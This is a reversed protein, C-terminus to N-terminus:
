NGAADEIEDAIVDDPRQDLLPGPAPLSASPAAAAISGTHMWDFLGGGHGNSALAGSYPARVPAPGTPKPNCYRSTGDRGHHALDLHFHDGHYPEGPGLV